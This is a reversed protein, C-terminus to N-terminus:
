EETALDKKADTFEDLKAHYADGVGSFWGSVASPRTYVWSAAIPIWGKRPGTPSTVPAEPAEPVTTVAVEPIVAEVPVVKISETAIPTLSLNVAPAALEVPPLPIAIEESHLFIPLRVEEGSQMLEDFDSSVKIHRHEYGPDHAISISCVGMLLICVSLLAPHLSEKNLIKM